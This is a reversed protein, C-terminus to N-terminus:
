FEMEGMDDITQVVRLVDHIDVTRSHYAALTTATKIANKIERGNLARASLEKMLAADVEDSGKTEGNLGAKQLFARWLRERTEANLPEYRLSVHIRSKMAPDIISLRNTTLILIGTYYRPM